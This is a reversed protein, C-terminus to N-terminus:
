TSKRDRQPNPEILCASEINIKQTDLLKSFVEGIYAGVDIYVVPTNTFFKCIDNVFEDINADSSYTKNEKKNENKQPPSNPSPKNFIKRIYSLITKPPM